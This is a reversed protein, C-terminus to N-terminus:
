LAFGGVLFLATLLPVAASILKNFQQGATLKQEKLYYVNCEEFTDTTRPDEETDGEETDIAGYGSM